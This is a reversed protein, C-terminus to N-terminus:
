VVMVIQAPNPPQTAVGTFVAVVYRFDLGASPVNTVTMTTQGAACAYGVCAFPTFSGTTDANGFITPLWTAGAGSGTPVIGSLAAHYAGLLVICDNLATTYTGLTITTSSGAINVSASAESTANVTPAVAPNAPYLSFCMAGVEGVQTFTQTFNTSGAVGIAYNATLAPDVGQEGFSNNTEGGGWSATNFFGLGANVGEGILLDNAGVLIAGTTITNVNQPPAPSVGPGDHFPGAM